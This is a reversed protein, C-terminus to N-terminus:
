DIFAIYIDNLNTGTPGTILLSDIAVLAYNSNNNELEAMPDIGESKMKSVTDGDVFGGAASTPGDTGDSGFALITIGDVGDIDIAASLTLEQNRGGLGDGKLTVVTEGGFILAIPAKYESTGLKVSKAMSAIFRGAERAETTLETTLIEAAYGLKETELKAAECLKNINLIIKSDVNDIYKPTEINIANLVAPSVQIDYQQTINLAEESTSEDACMPGSAISDVRDSLVDSIIISYIFRGSFAQALRGGKVRSLHKRITNIEVINAGKALLQETIDKMDGRTVGDMLYEMLSSGGGSLLFILREEEPISRVFNIAREGAHYSNEDPVPHGSEIIEFNSIDGKSHDHKTIILGSIISGGMFDFTIEAMEWAAKGLALIHYRNTRDLFDLEKEIASKSSIGKIISNIYNHIQLKNITIVEIPYNYCLFITPHPKDVLKHKTIQYGYSHSKGM